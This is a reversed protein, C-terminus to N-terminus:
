LERTRRWNMISLERRSDHSRFISSIVVKKTIDSRTSSIIKGLLVESFFFSKFNLGWRNHISTFSVWKADQRKTDATVFYVLHLSPVSVISSADDTVKTGGFYVPFAHADWSVPNLMIPWSLSLNGTEVQLYLSYDSLDWSKERWSKDWNGGALHLRFKFHREHFVRRGLARLNGQVFVSRWRVRRDHKSHYWGAIATGEM